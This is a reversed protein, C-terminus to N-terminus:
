NTPRVPCPACTRRGTQGSRRRPSAGVQGHGRQLDDESHSEPLNLFDVLYTDKFIGSADPHLERMPPSVKTPSLVVREFFAGRLQRDLERRSWREQVAMRLYFEREEPRTSRSLILLNHSWSLQRVLPAVKEDGQYTEFFQRMRFLSARTFGKLDPQTTAIHAALQDVVGEGWSASAIKRSIYEGIQWYLDVLEHNVAAVARARAEDILRLVDDFDVSATASLATKRTPVKKKAV